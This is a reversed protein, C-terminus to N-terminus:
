ESIAERDVYSRLEDSIQRLNLAVMGLDGADRVADIELAASIHEAARAAYTEALFLNRIVQAADTSWGKSM